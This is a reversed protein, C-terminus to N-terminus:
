QKVPGSGRGEYVMRSIEKLITQLAGVDNGRTMVCLLYPRGPDYVIGCDHLEHVSTGSLIRHGFKHAVVVDNPVGAVLGEKFVVESLISLAEESVDRSVYSANYLVRFFLSFSEASMTIDVNEKTQPEFGLDRYVQSLIEPDVVASLLDKANNDSYVIMRRILDGIPYKKGKQIPDPSTDSADGYVLPEPNDYVISTSFLAPDSQQQKLLALMLIVKYMSALVYTEDENVGGWASTNFDKVYVSVADVSGDKKKAAIYSKLSNEIPILMRLRPDDGVALLPQIFRYKSGTQRVASLSADGAAGRFWPSRGLAFGGALGVVAGVAVFSAIAVKYRRM